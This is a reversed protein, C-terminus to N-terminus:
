RTYLEIAGGGFGTGFRLTADSPPIFRIERVSDMRYNRLVDPGGLNVGDVFVRPPSNGRGSLWTGRLRRVADYAYSAGDLAVFDEATLVNRDRRPGSDGTGATSCAAAVLALLVLVFSLRRM